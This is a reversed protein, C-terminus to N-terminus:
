AVVLAITEQLSRVVASSSHRVHMTSPRANLMTLIRMLIATAKHYLTIHEALTRETNQQYSNIKNDRPCRCEDQSNDNM